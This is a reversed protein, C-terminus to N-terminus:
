DWIAAPELSSNALCREGINDAVQQYTYGGFGSGDFWTLIYGTLDPQRLMKFALDRAKEEDLLDIFRELKYVRCAFARGGIRETENHRFQNALCQVTQHQFEGM